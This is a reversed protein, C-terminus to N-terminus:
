HAEDGLEMPTEDERDRAEDLALQRESPHMPRARVVEGTDSRILDVMMEGYRPSEFCEVPRTEKGTRVESALIRVALDVTNKRGKWAENFGKKEEELAVQEDIKKALETSKLLREKPTMECALQEITTTRM